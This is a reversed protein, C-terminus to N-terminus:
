PVIGRYGSGTDVGDLIGGTSEGIIATAGMWSNQLKLAGLLGPDGLVPNGLWYKQELEYYPKADRMGGQSAWQAVARYILLQRAHPPQLTPQTSANLTGPPSVWRAVMNFGAVNGLNQPFRIVSGEWVYDASSDFYAGPRLLRAPGTADYVEVALPQIGGPFTYTVGGDATSLNTPPGMLVWPVQASLVNTWHSQALELLLYWSADPMTADVAPRQALAKCAALLYASDWQAM